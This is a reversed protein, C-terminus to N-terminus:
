NKASFFFNLKILIQMCVSFYVLLISFLYRLIKITELCLNSYISIM